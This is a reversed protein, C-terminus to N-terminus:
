ISIDLIPYSHWRPDSFHWWETPLPTLKERVMERQLLLMNKKAQPSHGPYDRHARRSFDDFGSPMELQNGHHDVLTCDIAAARTHFPGTDPNGIYREDPLFDWLMKQASLPRYCDWVKLGLKKKRLRRQIRVLKNAMTRRCLIIKNHYLPKKLVNRKTAYRPDTIITPDINKLAVLGERHLHGTKHKDPNLQKLRILRATIGRKLLERGLQKTFAKQDYGLCIIDPKLKDVIALKDGTGGLVVRDVTSQQRMNAVREQESFYPAYGKIRHTTADRSIVVTLQGGKRKAQQLVFLHGPHLIDFTGAILVKKMCYYTYWM